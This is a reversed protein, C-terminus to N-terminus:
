IPTMTTTTTTTSPIWNNKSNTGPTTSDISTNTTNVEPNNTTSPAINTKVVSDITKIVEEIAVSNDEKPIKVIKVLSRMAGTEITEGLTTDLSSIGIWPCDKQWTEVLSKLINTYSYSGGKCTQLYNDLKMCDQKDIIVRPESKYKMIVNSWIEKTSVSNQLNVNSSDVLLILEVKHNASNELNELMPKNFVSFLVIALLGLMIIFGYHRKLPINKRLVKFVRGYVM